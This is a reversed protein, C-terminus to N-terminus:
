PGYQRKFCFNLYFEPMLRKMKKHICRLGSIKSLQSVWGYQSFDIEKSEYLQYVLKRFDDRKENQFSKLQAVVNEEVLALSKRSGWNKRNKAGFTETQSHCNPCLFRLNNAENNFPDGDIHDIQLTLPKGQWTSNQQCIECNLTRGIELLARRIKGSKKTNKCLVSTAPEGKVRIGLNFLAQFMTKEQIIRNVMVM